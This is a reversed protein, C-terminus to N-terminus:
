LVPGAGPAVVLGRRGIWGGGYRRSRLAAIHAHLERAGVVQAQGFHLDEALLKQVPTKGRRSEHRRRTPLRSPRLGMKAGPNSMAIQSRWNELEEKTLQFMFDEPFRDRNRKVAENLRSTSVQYLEALDTDLMAKQGRILYIRREILGIPVPLQAAPSPKPPM